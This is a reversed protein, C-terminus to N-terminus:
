FCFILTFSIFSYCSVLAVNFGDHSEKLRNTVLCLLSAASGGGMGFTSSQRSVTLINSFITLLNSLPLIIFFIRLLPITLFNLNVSYIFRPLITRTTLKLMSCVFRLTKKFRMIFLSIFRSCKM